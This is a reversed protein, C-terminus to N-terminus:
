CKEFVCCCSSLMRALYQINKTIELSKFSKLNALEEATTLLAKIRLTETVHFIKRHTM